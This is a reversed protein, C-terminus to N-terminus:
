MRMHKMGHGGWTTTGVQRFGASIYLREAAPNGEDVLLGVPGCGLRAAKAATARLLSRAVGKGRWQPMVAISDLYLEGPGTEDTMGNFDRGFTEKMGDIFARRLRHLRSGDYSVSVGVVAGTGDIACIANEYSYQTGRMEVLSTIFRHFDEATHGDGYFYRCCEESMAVLILSAIQPADSPLGQRLTIDSHM